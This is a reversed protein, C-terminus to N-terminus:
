ERGGRRQVLSRFRHTIGRGVPLSFEVVAGGTRPETPGVLM